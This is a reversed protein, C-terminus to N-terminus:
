FNRLELIAVCRLCHNVISLTHFKCTRICIFDHWQIPPQLLFHLGSHDFILHPWVQDQIPSPPLPHLLPTHVDTINDVIFFIKLFISQLRVSLELSFSTFLVNNWLFRSINLNSFTYVIFLHFVFCFSHWLEWRQFLSGGRLRRLGCM